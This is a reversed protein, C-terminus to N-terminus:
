GATLAAIRPEALYADALALLHPWPQLMDPTIGDLGGTRIQLLSQAIV